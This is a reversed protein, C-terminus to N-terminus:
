VSEFNIAGNILFIYKFNWIWFGGVGVLICCTNLFKRLQVLQPGQQQERERATNFCTSLILRHILNARMEFMLPDTAGPRLVPGNNSRAGRFYRPSRADCSPLLAQASRLLLQLLSYLKDQHFCCETV